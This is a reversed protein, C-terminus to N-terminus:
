DTVWVLGGLGVGSSGFAAGAAGAVCVSGDSVESGLLSDGSGEPL